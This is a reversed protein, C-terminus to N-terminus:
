ADCMVYVNEFNGQLIDFSGYSVDFSGNLVFNTSADASQTVDYMVDCMEDCM